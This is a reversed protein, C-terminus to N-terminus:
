ISLRPPATKSAAWLSPSYSAVTTRPDVPAAVRSRAPERAWEMAVSM